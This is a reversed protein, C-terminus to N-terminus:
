KMEAKEAHGSQVSIVKLRSSSLSRSCTAVGIPEKVASSSLEASKASVLEGREGIWGVWGGVEVMVGAGNPREWCGGSDWGFAAWTGSIKTVFSEFCTFFRVTANLSSTGNGGADDPPSAGTGWRSLMLTDGSDSFGDCISCLWTKCPWGSSWWIEAIYYWLEYQTENRRSDKRKNAENIKMNQKNANKSSAPKPACFQFKQKEM